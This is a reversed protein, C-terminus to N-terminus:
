LAMPRLRTSVAVLRVADVATMTTSTMGRCAVFCGMAIGHMCVM